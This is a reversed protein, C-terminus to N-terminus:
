KITQLGQILTSINFCMFLTMSKLLVVRSSLTLFVSLHRAANPSHPWIWIIKM